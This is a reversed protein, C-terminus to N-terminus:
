TGDLISARNPRPRMWAAFSAAGAAGDISAAVAGDLPLRRIFAVLTVALGFVWLVGSVTVLLGPSLRQRRIPAFPSREARPRRLVAPRARRSMWCAIAYSWQELTPRTRSWRFLGSHLALAAGLWLPWVFALPCTVVLAVVFFGRSGYAVMRRRARDRNADLAEAVTMERM